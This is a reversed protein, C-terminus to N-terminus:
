REDKKPAGPRTAYGPAVPRIAEKVKDRTTVWYRASPNRKKKEEAYRQVWEAVMGIRCDQEHDDVWIEAAKNRMWRYGQKRQAEKERLPIKRQINSIFHRYLENYDRSDPMTLKGYLYGLVLLFHGNSMPELEEDSAQAQVKRVMEICMDAGYEAAASDAENSSAVVKQLEDMMQNLLDHGNLMDGDRSTFRLHPVTPGPLTDNLERGTQEKRAQQDPVKLGYQQEDDAM